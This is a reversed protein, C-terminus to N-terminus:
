CFELAAEIYDIARDISSQIQELTKGNGVAGGTTRLTYGGGPAGADVARKVM